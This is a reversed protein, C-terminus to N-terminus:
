DILQKKINNPVDSDKVPYGHYTPYGQANDTNECHFRYFKGQFYSFRQRDKYKISQNLAKQADEDSLDMPTANERTIMPDHKGYDPNYRPCIKRAQHIQTLNHITRNQNKQNEPILIITINEKSFEGANQLSILIGQLHVAGAISSDSIDKQNHLCKCNQLKAKIPEEEDIFPSKTLIKLLFSRQDRNLSNDNHYFWTYLTLESTLYCNSLNNHKRLPNNKGRIADIEKFIHFIEEMLTNATFVSDAQGIFSLENIFFKM